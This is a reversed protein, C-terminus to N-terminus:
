HPVWCSAFLLHPCTTAWSKEFSASSPQKGPPVPLAGFGPITCRLGLVYPVHCGVRFFLDACPVAVRALTPPVRVHFPFGLAESSGRFGQSPAEMGTRRTQHRIPFPVSTAHRVRGSVKKAENPSLERARSITRSTPTKDVLNVLTRCAHVM